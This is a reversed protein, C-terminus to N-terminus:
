LASPIISVTFVPSWKGALKRRFELTKLDIRPPIEAMAKSFSVEIEGTQTSLSIYPVPNPKAKQDPNIKDRIANAAFDSEDLVKEVVPETPVVVGAFAPVDSEETEEEEIVEDEAEEEKEEEPEPTPFVPM